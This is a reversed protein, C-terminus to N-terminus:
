VNTKMQLFIDLIFHCLYQHAVEVFGYEDSPVYFNYNGMQRVPNGSGFGTMTVVNCDKSQAMRIATTINPSAGSSSIAFLIDGPKAFMEIPKAFVNEYGFDNSICTLLSSDSFSIAPVNGNKWFDIAMHNAIAASGGNGIFILKNEKDINSIRQCLKDITFPLTLKCFETTVEIDSLLSIFDEEYKKIMEIM